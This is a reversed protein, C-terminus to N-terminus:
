EGRKMRLFAQTAFFAGSTAAATLTTMFAYTLPYEQVARRLTATLSTSTQADPLSLSDQQNATQTITSKEEVEEVPKASSLQEKCMKSAVVHAGRLGLEEKVVVHIPFDSMISSMRGKDLFRPLFQSEQNTIFELNKPAIGPAIYVGGHPLYSLAVNGTDGGFVAFMIELSQKFLKYNYKEHGILRGKETSKNYQADMASDVEEPYKERLFEYINELGKGSVVREVSVRPLSDSANHDAFGNAAQLRNQLFGLLEIELATRPAFEVHGGETPFVKMVGGPTPSLYCKGLGTGVGVLAIPAAGMPAPKGGQVTVIDKESLTLLGYGNAVFDNLLQVKPIHLDQHITNGDVIWGERNTFNIQNNTVPGAVAFCCADIKHGRNEPSNIFEWMVDSFSGFDNNKYSAQFVVNHSSLSNDTLQEATADYMILRANTGGIDGVLM